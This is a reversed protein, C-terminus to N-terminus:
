GVILLPWGTATAAAPVPEVPVLYILAGGEVQIFWVDTHQGSEFLMRRQAPPGDDVCTRPVAHTM